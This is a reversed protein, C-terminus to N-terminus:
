NSWMEGYISHIEDTYSGDVNYVYLPRDWLLNSGGDKVGEILIMNPASEFNPHVTRIRRISIKHKTMGIFIDDLRDPRNIMYFRGKHILLKGAATIVDSLTVVVEHRAIMKSKNGSIIGTGKKIYPPNTIVVNYKNRVIQEPLDVIDGEIIDIYQEIENLLLSRRAMQCMDPQIELGISKHEPYLGKLLIPLIGTGTGLDVVIDDKKVDAFHALLVADIGFCFKDPHQIIKLGKLQLDDIREYPLLCM